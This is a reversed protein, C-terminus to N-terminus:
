LYFYNEPNENEELNIEIEFDENLYKIIPTFPESLQLTHGDYFINLLVTAKNRIVKDPHGLLQILFKELFHM